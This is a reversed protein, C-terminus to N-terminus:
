ESPNSISDFHSDAHALIAGEKLASVAIVIDACPLSMGKQKSDFALKSSHDWLLKNAEIYLLL